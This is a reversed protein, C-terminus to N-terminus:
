LGQAWHHLNETIFYGIFILLIFASAALIALNWPNGSVTLTSVLRNQIRTFRLRSIAVLNLTFATLAGGILLITGGIDWVKFAVPDAVAAEFAAYFYSIGLVAKSAIMALFLLSPVLLLFGLTASRNLAPRELTIM